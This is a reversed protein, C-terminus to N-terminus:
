MREKGLFESGPIFVLSDNVMKYLGLGQQHVYFNGDLYFTYMFKTQPKWVKMMSYQKAGPKKDDLKFIYERSQFYIGSETAHTSWVDLFDRNAAPILDRLSYTRKQGLSDYDLYGLDSIAGYFILGDKHKTMSRVLTSAANNQIKIKRWKIGDYELIYNQVGFYMIGREDEQVSWTQPLANYIKASYNTIFPLGKESNSQTHVMVPILLLLSGSIVSFIRHHYNVWLAHFVKKM